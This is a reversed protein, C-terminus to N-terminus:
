LIGRHFWRARPKKKKPRNKIVAEIETNTITKNMVETEKQNLWPLSIKELYRTIEELNDM